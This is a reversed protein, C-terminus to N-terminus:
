IYNEGERNVFSIISDVNWVHLIIMYKGTNSERFRAGNGTGCFVKLVEWRQFAERIYIFNKLFVYITFYKFHDFFITVSRVYHLLYFLNHVILFSYFSVTYCYNATFFRSAFIDFTFFLFSIFLISCLQTATWAWNLYHQFSRERPLFSVYDYHSILSKSGTAQCVYYRNM